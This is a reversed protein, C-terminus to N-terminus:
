GTALQRRQPGRAAAVLREATARWEYHEAFARPRGEMYARAAPDALLSILTESLRAIPNPDDTRAVLRGRLRPEAEEVRQLLWGLGSLETGVPLAGAATAELVALPFAEPVLAPLVAAASTGLLAAVGDRDVPGHWRVSDRLRARESPALCLATSESRVATVLQERGTARAHAIVREAFADPRGSVLDGFAARLLSGDAGAGAIELSAGPCRRLISPWALLLHHVGKDLILRGAFTVRQPRAGARRTFRTTDVGPPIEALPPCVDGFAAEVRRRVEGNLVVVNTCSRVAQLVHTRLPAHPFGYLLGTGHVVAAWPTATARAFRDAVTSLAALHNVLVADWPAQRGLDDIFAFVENAYERLAHGSWQDIVRGRPLEPRSYMVPVDLGGHAHVSVSGAGVRFSARVWSGPGHSHLAHPLAERLNPEHCVLDVDHGAEALAHLLDVTYVASGSGTLGYGHLVLVRM